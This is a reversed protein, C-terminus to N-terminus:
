FWRGIAMVAADTSTAATVSSIARISAASTSAAVGGIWKTTGGGVGSVSPTVTFAAPYSWNLSPSLFVSGSVTSTNAFTISTSCIQTGDAFRVYEGNANSGREIISGTPVGGSQSVTGLVSFFDNANLGDLYTKLNGGFYTFWALARANYTSPSGLDPQAPTTPLNFAM